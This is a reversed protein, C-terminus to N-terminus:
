NRSALLVSFILDHRAAAPTVWREFREGCSCRAELAYGQRTPPRTTVAVTGCNRHHEHVFVQLDNFVGRPM